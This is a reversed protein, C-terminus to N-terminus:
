LVTHSSGPASPQSIYPPDVPVTRLMTPSGWWL